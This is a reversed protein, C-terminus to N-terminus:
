FEQRVLLEKGIKPKIWLGTRGQSPAGGGQHWLNQFPVGPHAGLQGRRQRAPNAMSFWNKRDLQSYEGSRSEQGERRPWNFAAKNQSHPPISPPCLHQQGPACDVSMAGPGPLEPSTNGLWWTYKLKFVNRTKKLIREKIACFHPYPPLGTPELVRSYGTLVRPVEHSGLSNGFVQPFIQAM